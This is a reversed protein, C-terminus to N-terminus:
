ELLKLYAEASSKRESDNCNSIYNEIKKKYKSNDDAFRGRVGNIQIEAFDWYDDFEPEYSHGYYLEDYIVDPGKRSVYEELYNLREDVSQKNQDVIHYIREPTPTFNMGFICTVMGAVFLVSSSILIIIYIRNNKNKM